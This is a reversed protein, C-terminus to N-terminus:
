PNIQCDHSNISATILSTPICLLLWHLVGAWTLQMSNAPRWWLADTDRWQLTGSQWRVSETDTAQMSVEHSNGAQSTLTTVHSWNLQFHPSCHVYRVPGYLLYVNQVNCLVTGYCAKNMLEVLRRNDACVKDALQASLSERCKHAVPYLVASWKYWLLLLVLRLKLVQNVVSHQTHSASPDIHSQFYSLNPDPLVRPQQAGPKHQSQNNIHLLLRSLPSPTSMRGHYMTDDRCVQM